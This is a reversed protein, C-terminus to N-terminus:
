GLCTYLGRLSAIIENRTNTLTKPCCKLIQAITSNIKKDVYTLELIFLEQTNLHALMIRDLKESITDMYIPTVNRKKQLPTDYQSVAYNLNPNRATRQWRGWRQLIQIMNDKDIM